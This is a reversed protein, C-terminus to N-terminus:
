PRPAPSIPLSDNVRKPSYPGFFWAAFIGVYWIVFLSLFVGHHIRRPLRAFGRWDFLVCFLVTLMLLALMAALTVVAVRPESATPIYGLVHVAVVPGIIIWLLARRGVPLAWLWRTRGRAAQWIIIVFWFPLLQWQGTASWIGMFVVFYAYQWSYVSRLVPAWRFAAFPGPSGAEPEAKLRKGALRFSAPANAWAWAFLGLGALTCVPLVLTIAGALLPGPSLADV